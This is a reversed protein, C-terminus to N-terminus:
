TYQITQEYLIKSLYKHSYLLPRGKREESHVM